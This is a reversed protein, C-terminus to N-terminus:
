LEIEERDEEVENAARNKADAAWLAARVHEALGAVTPAEFIVRM